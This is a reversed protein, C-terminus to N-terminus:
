KKKKQYKISMVSEWGRESLAKSIIRMECQRVILNLTKAEKSSAGSQFKADEARNYYEVYLDVLHEKAAREVYALIEPDTDKTLDEFIKEM